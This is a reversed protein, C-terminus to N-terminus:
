PAFNEALEAVLEKTFTGTDVDTTIAWATGAVAVAVGAAALKTLARSMPGPGEPKKAGKNSVVYASSLQGAQRALRLERALAADRSPLASIQDKWQGNRPNPMM